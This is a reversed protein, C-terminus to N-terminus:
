RYSFQYFIYTYCLKIQGYLLFNYQEWSSLQFHLDILSLFALIVQKERM